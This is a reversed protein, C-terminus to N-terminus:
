LQRTHKDYIHRRRLNALGGGIRASSAGGAGVGGRFVSSGAARARGVLRSRPGKGGKGKRRARPPARAWIENSVSPGRRTARARARRARRRGRVSGSPLQPLTKSSSAHQHSVRAPATRHPQPQIPVNALGQRLASQWISIPAGASGLAEGLLLQRRIRDPDETSRSKKPSPKLRPFGGIPHSLGSFARAGANRRARSGSRGRM